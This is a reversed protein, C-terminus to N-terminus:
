LANIFANMEPHEQSISDMDSKKLAYVHTLCTACVDETRVRSDSQLVWHGFHDGVGYRQSKFQQTNRELADKYFKDGVKVQGRAVFFVDAGIDGERYVFDGRQLHSPCMCLLVIKNFIELHLFLAGM